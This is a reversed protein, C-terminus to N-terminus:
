ARIMVLVMKFRGIDQVAHRKHAPLIIFEGTKVTHPKGTVTIRAKGDVIFILADFPATHESLGQGKDFAFITVTGKDKRIIEQSVISDKQYNILKKLNQPKATLVRM